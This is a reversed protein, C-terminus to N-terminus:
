AECLLSRLGNMCQGGGVEIKDDIHGSGVIARAHPVSM